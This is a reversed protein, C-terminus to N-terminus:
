QRWGGFTNSTWGEGSRAPAPGLARGGYVVAGGSADEQYTQWPVAGTQDVGPKTWDCVGTPFVRQLTAWQDPTFTIPYYDSQRLPKLQCRLQDTAVSEGAATAPTGFRTQALPLECVPGIGPLAIQEVGDISSCRDHVDAPRDDAVKQELSVNRNDSDVATLWRDMAV